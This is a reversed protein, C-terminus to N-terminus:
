PPALTCSVTCQLLQDVNGGGTRGGKMYLADPESQSLTCGGFLQYLTTQEIEYIGGREKEWEDEDGREVKM